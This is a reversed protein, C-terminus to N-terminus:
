RPREQGRDGARGEDAASSGAGNAGARHSGAGGPAPAGALVGAARGDADVVVDRGDVREVHLTRTGRDAGVFSAVFDDAPDALIEQPTGVQAIRGGPRLIM